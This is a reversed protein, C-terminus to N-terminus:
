PNNISHGVKVRRSFDWKPDNSNNVWYSEWEEVVNM